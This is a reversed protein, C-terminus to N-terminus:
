TSLVRVKLGQLGMFLSLKWKMQREKKTKLTTGRTFRLGRKVMIMQLKIVRTPLASGRPWAGQAEKCHRARARPGEDLM